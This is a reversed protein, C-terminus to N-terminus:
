AELYGDYNSDFKDPIEFDDFTGEFDEELFEDGAALKALVVSDPMCDKLVARQVGAMTSQDLNTIEIEMLPAPGGNKFAEAVEREESFRYYVKGKYTGKAGNIKHGDMLRGLIPVDGKSYELIAEIDVLHMYHYRNGNIKVYVDGEKGSIVEAPRLTNRDPM